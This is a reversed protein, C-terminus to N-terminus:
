RARQDLGHGGLPETETRDGFSAILPRGRTIADRVSPLALSAQHSERDTWVETVWLTEADSADRAVVYSLCGPMGGSGSILIEALLERDGPTAQIRGILGFM